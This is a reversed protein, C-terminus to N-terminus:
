RNPQCINPASHYTKTVHRLDEAHLSVIAELKRKDEETSTRRLVQQLLECAESYAQRAGELNQANDLQVATNAKQLARSLMAKQSPPKAAKNKDVDGSGKSSRRRAHGRSQSGNGPMTAEEYSSAISETNATNTLSEQFTENVHLLPLPELPPLLAFSSQPTGEQERQYRENNITTNIGAPTEIAEFATGSFLPSGTGLLPVDIHPASDAAFYQGPRTSTNRNSEEKQETDQTQDVTELSSIHYSSNVHRSPPLLSSTRPPRKRNHSAPAQSGQTDYSYLAEQANKNIGQSRTHEPSQSGTEKGEYLQPM